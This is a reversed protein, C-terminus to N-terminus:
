AAVEAAKRVKEVVVYAEHEVGVREVDPYVHGHRVAFHTPQHRVSEYEHPTMELMEACTDDACECVVVLTRPTKMEVVTENVERGKSQRRAASIERQEQQDVM